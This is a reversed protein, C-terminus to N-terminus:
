LGRRNVDWRIMVYLIFPALIGASVYWLGDLGHVSIYYAYISAVCFIAMGVLLGNRVRDPSRMIPRAVM